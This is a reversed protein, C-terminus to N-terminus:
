PCIACDDAGARRLLPSSINPSPHTQRAQLILAAWKRLWPLAAPQGGWGGLASGRVAWTDLRMEDAPTLAQEM